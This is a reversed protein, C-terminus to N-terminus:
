NIVLGWQLSIYVANSTNQPPQIIPIIVLAVGVKVLAVRVAYHTTKALKAFHSEM